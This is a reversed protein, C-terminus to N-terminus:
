WYGRELPEDTNHNLMVKQGVELDKIDIITRARPRIEKLKCYMNSDEDSYSIYSAKSFLM